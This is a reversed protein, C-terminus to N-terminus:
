ASGIIEGHVLLDVHMGRGPRFHIPVWKSSEMARGGVDVVDLKSFTAMLSELDRISRVEEFANGNISVAGLRGLRYLDEAVSGLLSCFVEFQPGRSWRNLHTNVVLSYSMEQETITERVVWKGTRASAKWHVMRLPDGPRYERLKMLETGSGQAKSQRGSSNNQLVQNRRKFTYDIRAPWVCVLQEYSDAITKRLFSFPFQSTMGFLRITEEGRRVPRFDWRLKEQGQPEIRGEQFLHVELANMLARLHFQLAYTPLWKKTNKLEIFVSGNEGVRFHPDLSVRWECGKFNLWSLVGSLLLSSLLLALTVYLINHATNFAATGIGLSLLILMLGTKTPLTKHGKPPRILQWILRGTNAIRSQEVFYGPDAWDVRPATDDRKLSM